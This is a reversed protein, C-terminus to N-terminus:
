SMSHVLFLLFSLGALIGVSVEKEKIFWSTPIAIGCLPLYGYKLLLLTSDRHFGFDLIFIFLAVVVVCSIFGLLLSDYNSRKPEDGIQLRKTSPDNQRRLSELIETWLPDRPKTLMFIGGKAPPIM